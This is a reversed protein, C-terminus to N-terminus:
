KVDILREMEKKEESNLAVVEEMPKVILDEFGVVSFDARTIRNSEFLKRYLKLIGLMGELDVFTKLNERAAEIRRDESRSFLRVETQKQSYEVAYLAQLLGKAATVANVFLVQVLSDIKFAKEGSDIEADSTIRIVLLIVMIKHVMLNLRLSEKEVDLVAIGSRYFLRCLDEYLNGKDEEWILHLLFNEEDPNLLAGGDVKASRHAFFLALKEKLSMNQVLQRIKLNNKMYM